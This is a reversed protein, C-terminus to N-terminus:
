TEPGVRVFQKALNKSTLVRLFANPTNELGDAIDYQYKLKGARHWESLRTRAEVYRHQYDLVLFGEIRARAVLIERMLRPGIDPQGFTDAIAVTGCLIIRAHTALNQLVADHIPGSTNDFFVDVGDPCERAIAAAPDPETRYDIGSDYGLERCRAIKEESSTVAIARCGSLKAIQGAIQGVSGAAESILVTDGPRMGGSEVLGIYATLGNLGMFDLWCPLPALDTDIRRVVSPPIVAYDQWGFTLDSVVFDGPKYSSSNSRVVEGIAGGLMVDGPGVGAAYNKQPSIRARMYPAVDLYMARVLM